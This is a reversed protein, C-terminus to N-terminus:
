DTPQAPAVSCGPSVEVEEVAVMERLATSDFGFLRYLRRLQCAGSVCLDIDWERNRAPQEIRVIPPSRRVSGVRYPTNKFDYHANLFWEHTPLHTNIIYRALAVLRRIGHTQYFRLTEDQITKWAIRDEPNMVGVTWAWTIIVEATNLCQLEELRRIAAIVKAPTHLLEVRERMAIHLMYELAIRRGEEMSVMEEFSTFNSHSLHNRWLDSSAFEMLVVAARMPENNAAILPQGDQLPLDLNHFPDGVARLLKDLDRNLVNEMQPSFWGSVLVHFSKLALIRSQLPHTPLLASALVPLTTAIFNVPERSTSLIRLAISGPYPPSVNTDFKECLLLFDLLPPIWTPKVHPFPHSPLQPFFHNGLARMVESAMQYRDEESYGSNLIEAIWTFGLEETGMAQFPDLHILASIFLRLDYTSDKKERITAQLQQHFLSIATRM